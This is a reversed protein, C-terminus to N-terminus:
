SLAVPKGTAGDIIQRDGLPAQLVVEVLVPHYDDTCAVKANMTDAELVVVVTDASEKAFHTVNTHPCSGSDGYQVMVADTTKARHASDFSLMARDSPPPPDVQTPPMGPAVGPKGPESGAPTGLYKPEVAVAAVPEESGKVDFLWAPLLVQGGDALPAVMLGLHAGTIEAPPPEQCGGDKTVPCLMMMRPAIPLADFAARASILPYSDAKEPQGLWGGAGTLHANQDVDVRTSWGWTRIGDVPPDVVLSGGGAYVNVRAPEDTLGLAELIPAAVARVAQESPTKQPAPVPYPPPPAQVVPAPGAPVPGAPLPKPGAPLLTAPVPSTAPAPAGTASSVSGVGSVACGVSSVSGEPAGPGESTAAVDPSCFSFYWALGAEGNVRLGGASWGDGQREPTGAKLADALRAVRSATGPGKPLSWAAADAPTDQPLDGTLRYAGGGALGGALTAAERAVPADALRLVRPSRSRQHGDAVLSATVAIAAVAVFAGLPALIKSRGTM